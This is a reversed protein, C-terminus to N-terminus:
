VYLGNHVHRGGFDGELSHKRSISVQTEAYSGAVEHVYLTRRGKGLSELCLFVRCYLNTQRVGDGDERVMPSLIRGQLVKGGDQIQGLLRAFLGGRGKEGNEKKVGLGKPPM